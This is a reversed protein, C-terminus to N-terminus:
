RSLFLQKSSRLISSVGRSVDRSTRLGPRDSSSTAPLWRADSRGVSKRPFQDDVIASFIGSGSLPFKASTRALTLRFGGDAPRAGSRPTMSEFFRHLISPFCGVTMRTSLWRRSFDASLIPFATQATKALSQNAYHAAIKPRGHESGLLM